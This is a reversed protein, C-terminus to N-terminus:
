QVKGSTPVANVAAVLRADLAANRSELEAVRARLMTVDACKSDVLASLAAKAESAERALREITDIVDAATMHYPPNGRLWAIADRAGEAGNAPVAPAPSALLKLLSDADAM